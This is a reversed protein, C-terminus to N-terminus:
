RLAFGRVSLGRRPVLSAEAALFAFTAIYQAGRHHFGRRSLSEVPGLGIENKLGQVDRGIRRRSTALAM